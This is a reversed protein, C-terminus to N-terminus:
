GEDFAKVVAATIKDIPTKVHDAAIEKAIRRKLEHGFAKRMVGLAVPPAIFVIHEFERSAAQKELDAAIGVIFRDETKQHPDPAEVSSRHQGTSEHVRGPQTADRSTRPLTASTTVNASPSGRSWLPAKM